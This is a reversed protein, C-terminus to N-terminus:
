NNWIKLVKAKVKTAALARPCTSPSKSRLHIAQLVLFIQLSQTEALTVGPCSWSLGPCWNGVLKEQGAEM